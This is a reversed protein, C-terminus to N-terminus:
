STSVKWAGEKLTSWLGTEMAVTPWDALQFKREGYEYWGGGKKDVLKADAAVELAAGWTDIGSDFLLNFTGKRFPPALKNKTVKVECKIGVDEKTKEIKLTQIRKVEMMITSAYGIANKALFTTQPEGWSGFSDVTEKLQSVLVWAIKTGDLTSCLKRFAKSLIRSHEAVQYEDFDGKVEHMTPTESVSDWVILHPVDPMAKSLGTIVAETKSLVAELHPPQSVIVEDANVGLKTAWNPDFAHETDFLVVKGGRRQAEAMLYITFTTKGHSIKGAISTVRGCPIGPTGLARDVTLVQTSVCDPVRVFDPDGLTMFPSDEGVTKNLEAVLKKIVDADAM